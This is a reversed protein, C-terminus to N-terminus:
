QLIFSRSDGQTPTKRWVRNKTDATKSLPDSKRLCLVHVTSRTRSFLPWLIRPMVKVFKTVTKYNKDRIM